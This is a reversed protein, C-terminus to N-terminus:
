KVNEWTLLYRWHLGSKMKCNSLLKKNIVRIENMTPFKYNTKIGLAESTKHKHFLSITKSPIVRLLDILKDKFNSPSALGVIIIIGNKRLLSKAKKISFYIDMHHISAVFIIADFKKNEKYEEFSQNYFYTNEKKNKNALEISKKNSDIGIIKKNSDSLFNVLTGDGCGVDLINRKNKVKRKIWKYYAINHNWYKLESKM